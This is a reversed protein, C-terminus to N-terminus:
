RSTEEVIKIFSYLVLLVSGQCFTVLFVPSQFCRGRRYLETWGNPHCHNFLYVEQSGQSCLVTLAYTGSFLTGQSCLVRSVDRPGSFVPDDVGLACPVRGCMVASESVDSRIHNEAYLRFRRAPIGLM